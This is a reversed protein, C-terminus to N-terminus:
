WFTSYQVIQAGALSIIPAVPGVEDESRVEQSVSM